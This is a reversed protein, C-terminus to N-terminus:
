RFLPAKRYRELAKLTWRALLSSWRLAPSSRRRHRLRRRHSPRGIVVGFLAAVADSSPQTPTVATASLQTPACTAGAVTATTGVGEVTVLVEVVKVASCCCSAAVMAWSRAASAASLPVEVVTGGREADPDDAVLPPDEVAVGVVGVTVLVVVLVGTAVGDVTGCAVGVM